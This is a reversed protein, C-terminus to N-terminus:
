EFRRWFSNESIRYYIYAILPMVLTMVISFVVRATASLYTTFFIFLFVLGVSFIMIFAMIVFIRVAQSVGRKTLDAFNSWNLYLKDYDRKFYHTSVLYTGFTFGLLTAIAFFISLKMFLLVFLIALSGLLWEVFFAFYFKARLYKKFSFPMSQIYYYNEQDLSIITGSISSSDTLVYSLILGVLIFLGWLSKMQNIKTLDGFDDGGFLFPAIMVFPLYFKSFLLQMIFSTDQLQRLQYNLFNQTPSHAYGFEIEKKKTDKEKKPSSAEENMFLQPIIKENTFWLLFVFLLGWLGVKWLGAVRLGAIFIEYFGVFLANAKQDTAGLGLAADNSYSQKFILYFVSVTLVVYIGITFIRKHKRFLAFQNLVHLIVFISLILVSFILLSNILAFITSLLISLGAQRGLILFLLIPFVFYSFSSLILSFVKSTFIEKVTFPLALYTSLDEDEFFLTFIFQFFQLSSFLLITSLMNSFVGPYETFPTNGLLAGYLVSFTVLIVGNQLLLRFVINKSEIKKGSNNMQRNTQLLDTMVLQKIKKFNM